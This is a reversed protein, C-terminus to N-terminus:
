TESRDDTYLYSMMPLFVFLLVDWPLDIFVGTLLAEGALM